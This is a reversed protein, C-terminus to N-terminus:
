EVHAVVSWPEFAIGRLARPQGVDFLALPSFRLHAGHLGQGTQGSASLTMEDKENSGLGRVLGM